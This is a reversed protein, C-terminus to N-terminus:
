VKVESKSDSIFFVFPFMRMCLRRYTYSNAIAHIHTQIKNLYNIQAIFSFQQLFLAREGMAAIITLKELLIHVTTDFVTPFNPILQHLGYMLTNTIM